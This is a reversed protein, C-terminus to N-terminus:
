CAWRACGAHFIAVATLKGEHSNAEM